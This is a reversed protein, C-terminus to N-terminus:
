TVFKEPIYFFLSCFFFRFDDSGLFPVGSSGRAMSPTKAKEIQPTLLFDDSVFEPTMELYEFSTRQENVPYLYNQTFSCRPSCQPSRHTSCQAASLVASNKSSPLSWQGTRCFHSTKKLIPMLHNPRSERTNVDDDWSSSGSNHSTKKRIKKKKNEKKKEVYSPVHHGWTKIRTRLHKLFSDMYLVIFRYDHHIKTPMSIVRRNQCGEWDGQNSKRSRKETSKSPKNAWETRGRNTVARQPSVIIEVHILAILNSSQLAWSHTLAVFLRALMQSLVRRTSKVGKRWYMVIGEQCLGTSAM